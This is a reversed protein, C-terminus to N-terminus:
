WGSSVSLFIKFWEDWGGEEMAQDEGGEDSAWTSM